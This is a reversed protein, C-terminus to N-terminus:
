LSVKAPNGFIEDDEDEDDNEDCLSGDRFFFISDNQSNYWVCPFDTCKYDLYSVPSVLGVSIACSGLLYLPKGSSEM